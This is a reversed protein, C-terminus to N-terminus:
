ILWPHKLVQEANLRHNPKTLMKSILDKCDNSIGNFEPTDLKINGTKVATLIEQETTGNFPPCGTLLIYLIVGASWIDCIENYNQDLVEPAIYFATGIKKTLQTKGSLTKYQEDNFFVSADFGILKIPSNLTKDLFLIYEPKLDRHCLGHTHCHHIAQMIQKFIGRSENETFKDQDRLREFLEGGTCLEMILFINQDDEFIEFLKIINPHDLNHLVKITKRLCDQDLVENKHIIKLARDSGLFKHKTIIVKGQYGSSLDKENIEYFDQVKEKKSNPLEQKSIQQKNGM